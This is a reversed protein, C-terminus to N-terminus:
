RRRWRWGIPRSAVRRSIFERVPASGILNGVLLGRNTLSEIDTVQDSLDLVLSNPM